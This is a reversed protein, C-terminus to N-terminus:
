KKGGFLFENLVGIAEDMTLERTEMWMDFTQRNFIDANNGCFDRHYSEHCRVCLTCLNNVDSYFEPFRWKPLVHHITLNETSGCYQCKYGDRKIAQKRAISYPSAEQREIPKKKAM